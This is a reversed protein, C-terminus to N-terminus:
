AGAASMPGGVAGAKARTQAVIQEARARRDSPSKQWSPTDDNKPAGQGGQNGATPATPPKGRAADGIAALSGARMANRQKEFWSWGEEFHSDELPALYQDRLPHGDPYFNKAQKEHAWGQAVHRYIEKEADSLGELKTVREVFKNIAAQERGRGAKHQEEAWMRKAESATLPKDDSSQQEPQRQQPQPQYQQQPQGNARLSAIAQAPTYGAARLQAISDKWEGVWPEAQPQPSPTAAPLNSSPTANPAAAVGGGGSTDGAPDPSYRISHNIAGSHPLALPPAFRDTNHSM